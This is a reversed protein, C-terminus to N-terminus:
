LSFGNENQRSDYLVSHVTVAEERIPLYTFDSVTKEPHPNLYATTYYTKDGIRTPVTSYSIERLSSSGSLTNPDYDEPTAGFLCPLDASAINEGYVVPLFVQEGDTYTLRYQGMRYEKDDIFVGDYFIRYPVSRETTHTVVVYHNESLNGHKRHFCERFTQEMVAPLDKTDYTSSWLAYADLILDFYQHNRQLYLPHNSGWNGCFGGLMGMERRTRWQEVHTAELNGYIARYGNTHYVYDYQIGFAYYWHLMLIDRPLKTQCYFLVPHRDLRTGDRKIYVGGAGGYRRGTTTVIPLLKDGWMMTEVGRAKLWDHIVTIDKAYVDDPEKDKCRPCLCASYLEDHGINVMTPHFVDLIEEMLDFVLPYTDPHEPCYTDPYPDETRERLEPHALCIYDSHSLTPVEPLVTLGRSQCYAILTRVEDQTLIDGEANDTHISNKSWRYGFQIEYARGSYRHTDAAFDKWARNIEPHRKYEMAGGVEFSIMNYKYYSITDVMDFFERFHERGPLYVRYGRIPCDPADYLRGTFIGEHNSMQVLTQAAYIAARETEAYLLIEKETIELAYGEERDSLLYFEPLASVVTLVDIGGNGGRDSILGELLEKVYGEANRVRCYRSLCAPENPEWHRPKFFM